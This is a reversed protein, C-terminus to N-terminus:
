LLGMFNLRLNGKAEYRNVLWCLNVGERRFTYFVDNGFFLKVISTWLIFKDISM